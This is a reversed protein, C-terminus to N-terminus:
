EDECQPCARGVRALIQEESRGELQVDLADAAQRFYACLTAYQPGSVDFDDAYSRLIIPLQPNM